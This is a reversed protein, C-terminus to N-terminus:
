TGRRKMRLNRVGQATTEVTYNSEAESHRVGSGGLVVM